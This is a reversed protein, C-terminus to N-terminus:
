EDKVVSEAHGNQNNEETGYKIILADIVDSFIIQTGELFYSHLDGFTNINESFFLERGKHRLVDDWLYVFLKGCLAQNASEQDILEMPSLFFPGLLRDEPIRMEKLQYNIVNNALNQWTIIYPGSSTMIKFHQNSIEQNNFDLKIYKFSWRRKFATDLPMVAQDSSNMTALITLNRPLYLQKIPAASNESLKRQIYDLMDPDTIDIAYKSSGDHRDLLQFLEGFVAAAPARNLEEIVLYVHKNANCLAMILATTFPGPRFQYTIQGNDMTPKLSGVFDSYQTDPHFVTVVKLDDLITKNIEHSKGTGPAGYYIVNSGKKVINPVLNNSPNASYVITSQAKLYNLSTTLHEKDLSMKNEDYQSEIGNSVLIIKNIFDFSPLTQTALLAKSVDDNIYKKFLDRWTNQNFKANKVFDDHNTIIDEFLDILQTHTIAFYKTDGRRGTNSFVFIPAGDRYSVSMTSPIENCKKVLEQIPKDFM